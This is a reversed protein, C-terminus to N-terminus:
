AFLSTDKYPLIDNQWLKGDIYVRLLEELDVEPKFSPLNGYKFIQLYLNDDERGLKSGCILMGLVAPVYARDTKLGGEIAIGDECLYTCLSPSPKNFSNVTRIIGDLRWKNLSFTKEVSGREIAM